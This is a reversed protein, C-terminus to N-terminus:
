VSLSSEAATCIASETSTSTIAPGRVGNESRSPAMTRSYRASPPLARTMIVPASMSGCLKTACGANWGTSSESCGYVVRGVNALRAAEFVNYSLVTNVGIVKELPDGCYPDPIAALHVVQDCGEIARCTAQLETLDVQRFAIAGKPAIVDLCLVDHGARALEDCVYTGIAGAGGTVAVKM